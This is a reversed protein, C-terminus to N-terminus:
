ATSNPNKDVSVSIFRSKGDKPEKDVAYRLIDNLGDACECKIVIRYRYKDKIKSVSSVAPGLMLTKQGSKELMAGIEEATSKAYAAVAEEDPGCFLITVLDCFPPYWMARRLRIEDKYFGKYDHNKAHVIASHEPTYTQVIARGEMDGRGARGCVQMILDFTREGSRYDDIYLSSDAAVVGVLTVNHFDLGKSVMQTGILVDTKEKEFKTLLKEHARKTSTTDFDMRVTSVGEFKKKLEEELKQTGAGFYKIYSSDCEPCVRYNEHTYGCYHCMLRNTSRHYTMSINCHPCKVVYGCSRCSVFTSFGRRNLFLISQQGHEINYLLEHSLMDGFMTRNGKELEERMDTVYVTPLKQANFRSKMELLKYEGTEARYYSEISPTASALVTVAGYQRARFLAVDRAHYKPSMESKYTYEHEEDLIIAGINDLPAFVASRAGVVVDVGGRKIRKWEDYREGLSLASHLIAVRDGFRSIFRKTMLPTLSIEPVLVIATKGHQLAHAILHMYVETKGSGTVGHILFTEAMGSDMSACLVEKAREQEDTLTKFPEREIEKGASPDRLVEADFLEIIGKKCLATLAAYGTSALYVLDAAAVRENSCLIDIIKAQKPAKERLEDSIRRAEDTDVALSAFRIVRTKVNISDRQLIKVIGQKELATIHARINVDWMSALRGMEIKGNESMLASIIERKIDSKKLKEKIIEADKEALCVWQEFNVGTGTPMLLHVAEVYSCLTKERLWEILEAGKEDFADEGGVTRAVSKVRKADTQQKVEFVYGECLMSRVGFPVIVRRGVRMEGCIGDPVSYDFIRDVQRATKSVIVGVFM